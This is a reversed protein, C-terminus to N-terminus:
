LLICNCSLNSITGAIRVLTQTPVQPTLPHKQGVIIHAHCAHTRIHEPSILKTCTSFRQGNFAKRGTTVTILHNSGGTDGIPVDCNIQKDCHNTSWEIM